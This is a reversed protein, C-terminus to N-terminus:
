LMIILIIISIDNLRFRLWLTVGDVLSLTRDQCKVVILLIPMWYSQNLDFFTIWFIILRLWLGDFYEIFNQEIFFYWMKRKVSKGKELFFFILWCRGFEPLWSHYSMIPDLLFGWNFLVSHVSTSLPPVEELSPSLLLGIPLQDMRQCLSWHSFCFSLWLFYVTNVKMLLDHCVGLYGLM